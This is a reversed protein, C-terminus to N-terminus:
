TAEKLATTVQALGMPGPHYNQRKSEYAICLCLLCRVLTALMDTPLALPGASPSDQEWCRLLGLAAM